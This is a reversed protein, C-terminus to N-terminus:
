YLTPLQHIDTAVDPTSSVSAIMPGPRCHCLRFITWMMPAPSRHELEPLLDQTCLIAGFAGVPSLYTAAAVLLVPITLSMM